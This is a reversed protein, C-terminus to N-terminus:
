LASGLRWCLLRAQGIWGLEILTPQTKRITLANGLIETFGRSIVFKGGILVVWRGLHGEARAERCTNTNPLVLLLRRAEESDRRILITEATEGHQSKAIQVASANRLVLTLSDPIEAKTGGALM